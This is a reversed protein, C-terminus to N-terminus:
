LSYLDLDIIQSIIIVNKKNFYDFASSNSSALYTDDVAVLAPTFNMGFSNRFQNHEGDSM